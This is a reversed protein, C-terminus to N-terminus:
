RGDGLRTGTYNLFFEVDQKLINIYINQVKIKNYKAKM